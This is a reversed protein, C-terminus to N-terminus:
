MPLLVLFYIFDLFEDASSVLSLLDIARFDFFMLCNYILQDRSHIVKLFPKLLSCLDFAESSLRKNRKGRPDIPIPDNFQPLLPWEYKGWCGEHVSIALLDGDGWCLLRCVYNPFVHVVALQSLCKPPSLACSDGEQEHCSNPIQQKPDIHPLILLFFLAINQIIFILEQDLVANRYKNLHDICNRQHYHIHSTRQPHISCM